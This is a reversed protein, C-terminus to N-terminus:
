YRLLIHSTPRVLNPDDLNVVETAGRVISRYIREREKEEMFVSHFEVLLWPRCTEIIGRSGEIVLDEAGEVDIKVGNPIVRNERCYDDVTTTEIAIERVQAKSVGHPLISSGSQGFVEASLRAEGKTNCLALHEVKCKYM